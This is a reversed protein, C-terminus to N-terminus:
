SSPSRNAADAPLTFHFTAGANLRGQAWTRGGHRGVIRRVTALGIGTGEFEDARHLRQFVGFLKDAYKMDFGAGNDRVFFEVQGDEHAACGVQIEAEPCHRTYKVANSLLNMWVLRLMAADGRVPPLAGIVWRIRRGVAESELAERVEAVLRGTDVATERMEARSMRSFGLLDEILVGMERAADAITRLFRQGKESLAGQAERTLMEVYGQVHRLPARLDHSVSYSFSELEQNAAELQAARDQLLRNLAHIRQEAERAETVDRATAYMLGAYPVSRWALTRWSGDKHRFRCEYHMVREGAAQRRVVAAASERDEPHIQEMYPRALFEDVTWGLFETVAPSARKFYGDASAICLLDASLDFFRDLQELASRAETVDRFVLVVGLIKGAADRIPAASDAVARERGDRAVLLTHNALDRMNGTALVDEVPIRAPQRTRGDIIRFVEAVPRGRAAALDWGTLREAVPNLRTIRGATNTALVGDGISNLTVALSEESRRLADALRSHITIDRRLRAFVAGLLVVSFVLGSGLALLTRATGTETRRQREALLVQEEERATAVLARIEDMLRRGERVSVVVQEADPESGRRIEVQHEVSRLKAAVLEDLRSVRALQRVNDIVLARLERLQRHVAAPTEVTPALFRADGTLLHGGSGTELEQVLILIADFKALVEHTRVVERNAATLLHINRVVAGALLAVVVLALALSITLWKSRARNAFPPGVALLVGAGLILFTAGTPAAMATYPGYAVLAPIDYLTGVFALVAVGCAGLGLAAATRIWRTGVLALAAGLLVFNLATPLAM